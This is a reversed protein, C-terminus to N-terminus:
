VHSDFEQEIWDIASDTLRWLRRHNPSSGVLQIWGRNRLRQFGGPPVAVGARALDPASFVNKPSNQASLYVYIAKATEICFQNTRSPANPYYLM